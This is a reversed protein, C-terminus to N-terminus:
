NSFKPTVIFLIIVGIAEIPHLKKLIIRNLSVYPYLDLFSKVRM